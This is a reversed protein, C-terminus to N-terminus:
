INNDLDYIYFGLIKGNKKIPIIEKLETNEIDGIYNINKNDPFIEIIDSYFREWFNVDYIITCVMGRQKSIHWGCNYDDGDAFIPITPQLGLKILVDLLIEFHEKSHTIIIYGDHNINAKIFDNLLLRINIVEKQEFSNVDKYMM